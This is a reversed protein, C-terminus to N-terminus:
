SLEITENKIKALITIKMERIKFLTLSRKM